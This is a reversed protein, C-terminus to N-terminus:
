NFEVTEEGYIFTVLGNFADKRGKVDWRLKKWGNIKEELFNKNMAYFFLDSKMENWNLKREWESM